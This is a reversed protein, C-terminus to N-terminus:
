SAKRSNTFNRLPEFDEQRRLGGGIGECQKMGCTDLNSM